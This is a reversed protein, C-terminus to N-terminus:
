DLKRYSFGKEQIMETFSKLISFTNKGEGNAHMIWIDGPRIQNETYEKALSNPDVSLGKAVKDFVPGSWSACKMRRKELEQFTTETPHGFPVRYWKIKKGMETKWWNCALDIDKIQEENSQKLTDVHHFGHGGITFGSHNLFSLNKDRNQKIWDVCVFFTAEHGEGILWDILDEDLEKTPCMDFTLYIVKEDTSIRKIQRSDIEKENHGKKQFEGYKLFANPLNLNKM